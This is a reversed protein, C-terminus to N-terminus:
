YFSDMYLTNQYWKTFLAFVCWKWWLLLSNKYSLIIKLLKLYILFKLGHWISSIKSLLFGLFTFYHSSRESWLFILSVLVSWLISILVPSVKVVARVSEGEGANITGSFCIMSFNVNFKMTLSIEGPSILFSPVRFSFVESLIHADTELDMAM